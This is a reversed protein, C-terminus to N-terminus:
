TKNVTKCNVTKTTLQYCTSDKQSDWHNLKSVASCHLPTVLLSTFSTM